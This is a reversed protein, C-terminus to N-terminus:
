HAKHSEIVLIDAPPEVVPQAEVWSLRIDISCEEEKKKAKLEMEIEGEPQFTISKEGATIVLSGNKFGAAVSNLYKEVNVPYATGEFKVSHKHDKDHGMEEEGTTTNISEVQIEEVPIKEKPKRTSPM